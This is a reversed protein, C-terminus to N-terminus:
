FVRLKCEEYCQFDYHYEDCILQHIMSGEYHMLKIAKVQGPSLPFITYKLLKDVHFVIAISGDAISEVAVIDPDVKLIKSADRKLQLVFEMRCNKFSDDLKFILRTVDQGKVGVASPMCAVIRGRLYQEFRKKYEEMQVIGSKFRILKIVNELLDFNFFSCYSSMADVIDIKNQIDDIMQPKFNSPSDNMYITGSRVYRKLVLRVTKVHVTSDNFYLVFDFFLDNFHRMMEDSEQKLDHVSRNNGLCFKADAGTVESVM